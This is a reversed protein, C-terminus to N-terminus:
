RRRSTRPCVRCRPRKPCRGAGDTWPCPRRACSFPMSGKARNRSAAIPRFRVGSRPRWNKCRHV